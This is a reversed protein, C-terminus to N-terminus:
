LSDGLLKKMETSLGNYYINKYGLKLASIAAAHDDEVNIIVSAIKFETKLINFMNDIVKIGLYYISGPSNTLIIEQDLVKSIERRASILSDITITIQRLSM